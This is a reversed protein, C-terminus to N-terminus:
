RARVEEGQKCAERIHILDEAISCDAQVAFISGMAKNKGKGKAAGDAVENEWGPAEQSMEWVEGEKKRQKCADLVADLEAQRRGVLAISRCGRGAYALAIDRGVGSSAGLILIRERYPPIVSQRPRSWRYFAFLIPIPTLLAIVSFVTQAQLIYQDPVNLTELVERLWYVMTTLPTSHPCAPSNSVPLLYLSSANTHTRGANM